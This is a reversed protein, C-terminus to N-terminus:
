ANQKLWRSLDGVSDIVARRPARNLTHLPHAGYSVALGDCGAAAAMNLDHTTDGIMLTEAADVGTFSMLKELMDPHPKPWGEDACRTVHFHHRLGCHDFARELGRRPKGTAVALFRAEHALEALVGTIGDYLKVEGDRPVYHSRFRLAFADLGAADLQPFLLVISERIGLGIIHKASETTPPVLNCDLAAKQICDAILSTSDMITGDWDFVVLRYKM